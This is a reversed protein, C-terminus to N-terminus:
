VYVDSALIFYIIYVILIDIMLVIKYSSFTESNIYLFYTEMLTRFLELIVNIFQILGLNFLCSFNSRTRLNMIILMNLKSILLQYSQNVYAGNM